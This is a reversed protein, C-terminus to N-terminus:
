SGPQHEPRLLDLITKVPNFTIPPVEVFITNWLAMGGNWLGPLELAKLDRGEFSKTSIFGTDPDSFQTLDFPNGHFDRVGCVMDVPNFHTSSQLLSQQPTSDPAVQSSEVIQLSLSGDTQRVWFPGGGPEGTNKVMGCVRLPRNFRDMLYTVRKQRSMKTFNPPVSTSLTAESFTAMENIQGESVHGDTLTKLYTYMQKQVSVLLGGIAKKYLYTTDKLRDPVVNDINKIFVIDAEADNLNELLAGHGGPRFVLKGDASRFPQNNLDVAMTDTSSKQQSFTVDLNGKKGEVRDRIDEVHQRMLHEHEPSVTFHLRTRGTSDKAYEHGEVLHEEISTRVHDGYRHFKILGKPLATYNLGPLFLLHSLIPKYCGTDLLEAMGHGHRSLDAHLDDYFAFLQLNEIFRNLEQQDQSKPSTNISTADDVTQLESWCSLLSKFMRSAAGSAPVFKTVRGTVMEAHFINIYQDLESSTLVTMGDGVTCPRDLTTFPIGQRFTALQREVVDPSIGQGQLEKHDQETFMLRHPFRQIYKARNFFAALPTRM